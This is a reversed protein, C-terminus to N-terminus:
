NVYNIMLGDIHYLVYQYIPVGSGNMKRQIKTGKESLMKKYDSKSKKYSSIIRIECTYPFKIAEYVIIADKGCPVTVNPRFGSYPECLRINRSNFMEVTVELTIQSNDNKFYLYGVGAKDDFNKYYIKPESM